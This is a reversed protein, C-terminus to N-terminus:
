DLYGDGGCKHCYTHNNTGWQVCAVNNQWYNCYEAEGTCGCSNCKWYRHWYEGKGCVTHPNQHIARSTQEQPSDSCVGNSCNPNTCRTRSSSGGGGGGSSTPTSTPTPTPDSYSSHGNCHYYCYGCTSCKSGDCTSCYTGSTIRNYCPGCSCYYDAVEWQAKLTHNGTPTDSEYERYGNLYWGKLTYGSRSASPFSGYSDGVWVKKSSYSVSGGNGDFTITYYQRDWRAYLTHNAHTEVRTGNQIKSGGSSKTTYWGLFDYGYRSMTPLGSYTGQYRVTIKRPSPTGGGNGDLTVEYEKGLWQAYLTQDDTVTVTTNNKIESGGTTATFWGQFDYYNRTPTPLNRYYNYPRKYKVMQFNATGSALSGGNADLTIKLEAIDTISLQKEAAIGDADVTRAYVVCNDIIDTKQTGVTWTGDDIKYEIRSSTDRSTIASSMVVKKEVPKANTGATVTATITLEETITTIIKSSAQTGITRLVFGERPTMKSTPVNYISSGFKNDVLSGNLFRLAGDGTYSKETGEVVIYNKEYTKTGDGLTMAGSNIVAIAASISGKVAELTGANQIGYDTGIINSNVLKFSAGTPISIATGEVNMFGVEYDETDLSIKQGAILELPTKDELLLEILEYTDGSAPITKAADNASLFYENQAPIWAVALDWTAVFTEHRNMTYMEGSGYVRQDTSGKWSNFVYRARKPIISTLSASYGSAKFKTDIITNDYTAFDMKYVEISAYAVNDDRDKVYFYHMGDRTVSYNIAIELREENLSQWALSAYSSADVFENTWAYEVIGGNDKANGILVLHEDEEDGTIKVTPKETDSWVAYLTQDRTITYEDGKVYSAVKARANESWGLFALNSRQPIQPPINIISGEVKKIPKPANVGGNADFTLTYEDTSPRWVAYLVINRDESYTAGKEYKVVKTAVSDAWGLFVQGSKIPVDNSLVIDVGHKKYQTEPAQTGGNADYRITYDDAEKFAATLSVLGTPMTFRSTASYLSSLEVKVSNPNVIWREFAYGQNPVASIYVTDGAIKIGEGIATGSGEPTIHIEVKTDTSGWIAYLVTDADEAFEAGPLYEAISNNKVKSWGAFSVGNKEPVQEPLNIAEGQTKVISEPANRGGNANFSIVYKAPEGPTWVAYLDTDRNENFMSGPTYDRTSSDANKSWATLTYGPRKFGKLRVEASGYKTQRETTNTEDMLHYTITYEKETIETIGVNKISVRNQSEEARVRIRGNKSATYEYKHNGTDAQLEDDIRLQIWDNQITPIVELKVTVGTVVNEDNPDKVLEKTVVINPGEQTLIDSFYVGDEIYLGKAYFVKGLADYIYVDNDTGRKGFIVEKETSAYKLYEKGYKAVDVQEIKALDVVYGYCDEEGFSVFDSPPNEIKVKYFGKEHVDEGMGEIQNKLRYSSVNVEVTKLENRYDAVKVEDMTDNHNVIAISALIVMTIITIVLAIMSIGKSDKKKIFKNFFDKM